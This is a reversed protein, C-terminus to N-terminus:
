FINFNYNKFMNICSTLQSTWILKITNTESTLEIKASINETIVENDNIQISSPLPSFNENIISQTGNGQITLLIFNDKSLERLDVDKSTNILSFISIYIILSLIILNTKISNEIINLKMLSKIKNENKGKSYNKSEMEKKHSYNIQHKAKIEKHNEKNELAKNTRIEHFM